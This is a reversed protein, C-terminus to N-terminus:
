RHDVNDYTNLREAAGNVVLTAGAVAGTCALLLVALMGASLITRLVVRTETPPLRRTM